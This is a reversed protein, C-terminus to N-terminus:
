FEPRIKMESRKLSFKWDSRFNYWFVGHDNAETKGGSTYVGNLHSHACDRFWWAGFRSVACNSSSNDNDRDKTSFRTENHYSLSDGANGQYSGITMKYLERESRVLFKSYRSYKKEGDFAEMDVRLTMDGKNTLAFFLENGIWFEQTINGFGHKYYEWTLYFDKRPEIDDRRQLVTWGGGETIMDCYAQVPRNFYRPWIIYVGSEYFGQRRIDYCDEPKCTIKDNALSFDGSTLSFVLTALSFGLLLMMNM